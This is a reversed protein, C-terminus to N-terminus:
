EKANLEANRVAKEKKAKTSSNFFHTQLENNDMFTTRQPKVVSWIRASATRGSALHLDITSLLKTHFATPIPVRDDLARVASKICTIEALKKINWKQTGEKELLPTIDKDVKTNSLTVDWSVETSLLAVFSFSETNQYNAAARIFDKILDRRRNSSNGKDTQRWWKLEVAGVTHYEVSNGEDSEIKKGIRFITLDVASDTWGKPLKERGFIWAQKQSSGAAAAAVILGDRLTIEGMENLSSTAIGHSAHSILISAFRDALEQIQSDKLAMFIDQIRISALFNLM